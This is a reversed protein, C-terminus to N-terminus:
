EPTYIRRVIDDWDGTFNKIGKQVPPIVEKLLDIIRRENLLKASDNHAKFTKLRNWVINYMTNTHQITSEYQEETAIRYQFKNGDGVLYMGKNLLVYVFRSVKLNSLAWLLLEYDDFKVATVLFEGIEPDYKSDDVGDSIYKRFTKFIDLAMKAASLDGRMYTAALLKKSTKRLMHYYAIPINSPICITFLIVIVQDFNTGIEASIHAIKEANGYWRVFEESPTEDLDIHKTIEYVTENYVSEDARKTILRLYIMNPVPHAGLAASPSTQQPKKKHPM